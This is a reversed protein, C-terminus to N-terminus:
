LYSTKHPNGVLVSIYHIRYTVTVPHPPLDLRNLYGRFLNLYQVTIMIMVSMSVFMAGFLFGRWIELLFVIYLIGTGLKLSPLDQSFMDLCQGGWFFPSM